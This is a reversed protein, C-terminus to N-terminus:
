TVILGIVWIGCALLSGSLEVIITVGTAKLAIVTASWAQAHDNGRLREVVYVALVFGLPLGIVPLVFFGIAGVLLGCVITFGPVSGRALYRGAWVYKLVGTLILALAAIAFITWAHGGELGAWVGIAGAIIVPGPYIQIMSGILGIILVLAILLDQPM